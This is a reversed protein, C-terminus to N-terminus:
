IERWPNGDAMDTPDWGRKQEDDSILIADPKGLPGPNDDEYFEVTTGKEINDYIWKANEVTLRICGLSAPTGLKDYEWYELTSNDQKTYPVSHFLISDVIQTIYQAYVGGKLVSWRCKLTTTKHIEGSVPTAKGISCLMAKYPEYVGDEVKSYVNVVNQNRNVRIYYPMTSDVNINENVENIPLEEMIEEGNNDSYIVTEEIVETNSTSIGILSTILIIIALSIKGIM